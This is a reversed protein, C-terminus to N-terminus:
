CIFNKIVQLKNFLAGAVKNNKRDIAVLSVGDEAAAEALEVLEIIAEPNKYLEMSTCVNEHLFFSNQMLDLAEQLYKKTIQQYIINGDPSFAWTKPEM